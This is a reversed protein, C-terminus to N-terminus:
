SVSPTADVGFPRPQGNARWIEVSISFPVDKDAPPWSPEIRLLLPLQRFAPQSGAIFTRCSIKYASGLFIVDRCAVSITPNLPPAPAHNDSPGPESGPLIDPGRGETWSLPRNQPRQACSIKCLRHASYSIITHLSRSVHALAM